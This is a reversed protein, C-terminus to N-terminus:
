YPLIMYNLNTTLICYIINTLNTLTILLYATYTNYICVMIFILRSYNLM